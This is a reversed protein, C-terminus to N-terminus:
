GREPVGGAPRGRNGDARAVCTGAAHEPVVCCELAVDVVQLGRAQSWAGPDEADRDVARRRYVLQADLDPLDSSLMFLIMVAAANVAATASIGCPNSACCDSARGPAGRSPM